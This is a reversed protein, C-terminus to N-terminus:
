EPDANVMCYLIYLKPNKHSNSRDPILLLHEAIPLSPM